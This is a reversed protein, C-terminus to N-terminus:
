AFYAFASESSTVATLQEPTFRSEFIHWMEQHSRRFESLAKRASISVPEPSHTFEAIFTLIAPMWEPVDYPESYCLACLGLVGSHRLILAKQYEDPSSAKSPLRTRAARVFKKQLFVLNVKSGCFMLVKSLTLASLERVEIRVDELLAILLSVVSKTQAKTLLIAQRICLGQLFRLVQTKTGWNTSSAQLIESSTTVFSNLCDSSFSDGAAILSLAHKALASYEAKPHRSTILIQPFLREIVGDLNVLDITELSQVLVLLSSELLPSDVDVKSSDVYFNNMIEGSRSYFSSSVVIGDAGVSISFTMRALIALLRATEQRTQPSHSLSSVAVFKVLREFVDYPPLPRCALISQIIQMRRTQALTTSAPSELYDMFFDFLWEINQSDSDSLSFCVATLFHDLSQFAAKELAEVLKALHNKVDEQLKVITVSAKLLACCVEIALACSELDTSSRTLVREIFLGAPAHLKPFVCFLIHFFQLHILDLSQSSTTLRSRPWILPSKIFKLISLTSGESREKTNLQSAICSELIQSLHTSFFDEIAGLLNDPLPNAITARFVSSSQDSSLLETVLIMSARRIHFVDNLLSSLLRSIFPVPCHKLSIPSYYLFVLEMLEYRWHKVDPAHELASSFLKIDFGSSSSPGSVPLDVFYNEMFGVITAHIGNQVLDSPHKMASGFANAFSAFRTHRELVISRFGSTGMFSLIGLFEHESCKPDSITSICFNFVHDKFQPFCTLLSESTALASARVAPDRLKLLKLVIGFVIKLDTTPLCHMSALCSRLNNLLYAREVLLPRITYKCRSLYEKRSDLVFRNMRAVSNLGDLSQSHRFLSSVAKSFAGLFDSSLGHESSLLPEVCSALTSLSNLLISKLNTELDLAERLRKSLSFLDVRPFSAHDNEEFIADGELSGLAFRCGEMISISFLLNKITDEQVKLFEASKATGGSMLSQFSKESSKLNSLIDPLFSSILEGASSIEDSSPVHWSIELNFPDDVRDPFSFWDDWHCWSDSEWFQSPFSRYERPYVSVLSFLSNRLIKRGLKRISRSSDNWCLRILAKCDTIFPILASGSYRVSQSIIYLVWESSSSRRLSNKSSDEFVRELLPRLIIPLILHPDSEVIGTVLNKYYKKSEPPEVELVSRIVTHALEYRIDRSVCQLFFFLCRSVVRMTMGDIFNSKQFPGLKTCFDIMLGWFASAWEQFCFTVQRFAESDPNSGEFGKGDVFPINMFLISFFVMTSGSKMLDNVDIGSLSTWLISELHNVGEATVKPNFAAQSIEGLCELSSLTKHAHTLSEPSLGSLIEPFLIPFVISPRLFGLVKFASHASKKTSNSRAYLAQYALSLWPQLLSDPVTVDVKRHRKYIGIRRVLSETGDYLFEALASSWAGENAPHLYNKFISTLDQLLVFSFSETSDGTLDILQVLLSAISSGCVNRKLHYKNLFEETHSPWIRDKTYTLLLADGQVTLKLVGIFKNVLKVLVSKWQLNSASVDVYDNFSVYKATRHFLDTLVNLSAVSHDVWDISASIKDFWLACQSELQLPLFLCLLAQVDFFRMHYPQYHPWLVELIEETASPGWFMRCKKIAKVLQSSYASVAANSSKRVVLSRNGDLSFDLLAQARSFLTKWSFELTIGHKKTMHPKIRKMVIDLAGLVQTEQGLSLPIHELCRFLSIALSTRESFLPQHGATFLELTSQAAVVAKSANTESLAESLVTTTFILVQRGHQVIVERAEPPMNTLYAM